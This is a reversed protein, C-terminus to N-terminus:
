PIDEPMSKSAPDVQAVRAGNSAPYQAFGALM